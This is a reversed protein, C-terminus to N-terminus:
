KAKEKGQENGIGWAIPGFIGYRQQLIKLIIPLSPAFLHFKQRISQNFRAIAKQGEFAVEMQISAMISCAARFGISVKQLHELLEKDRHLIPYLDAILNDLVTPDLVQLPFHVEGHEGPTAYPNAYLQSIASIYFYILNLKSINGHKKSFASDIEEFSMPENGQNSRKYFVFKDNDKM